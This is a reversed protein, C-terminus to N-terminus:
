LWREMQEMEVLKIWSWQASLFWSKRPSQQQWGMIPQSTHPAPRSWETEEKLARHTLFLMATETSVPTLLDQGPFFSGRFSNTGLKGQFLREPCCHASAFGQLPSLTAPSCTGGALPSLGRLRAVGRGVLQVSQWPSADPWFPLLFAKEPTKWLRMLM